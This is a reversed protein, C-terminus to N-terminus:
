EQHGEIFRFSSLGSVCHEKFEGCHHLLFESQARKNWGPLSTETDTRKRSDRYMTIINLGLIIMVIAIIITMVIILLFPKRKSARTRLTPQFVPKDGSAGDMPELKVEAGLSELVVRYNAAEEFTLGKKVMIPSWSMMKNASSISLNFRNMLGETLKNLHNMDSRASGLFIVNYLKEEM